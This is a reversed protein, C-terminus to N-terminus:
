IEKLATIPIDKHCKKVKCFHKHIKPINLHHLMKQYLLTKQLEKFYLNKSNIQITNHSYFLPNEKTEYEPTINFAHAYSLALVLLYIISKQIYLKHHTM